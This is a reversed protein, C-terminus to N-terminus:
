STRSMGAAVQKSPAKEQYVDKPYSSSQPFRSTSRPMRECNAVPPRSAMSTVILSKRTRFKRSAVTTSRPSLKM